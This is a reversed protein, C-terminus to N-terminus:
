FHGYILSIESVSFEMNCINKHKKFKQLLPAQHHNQHVLVHLVNNYPMLINHKVTDKMRIETIWRFWIDAM